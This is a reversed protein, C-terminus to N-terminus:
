NGMIHRGNQNIGMQVRIRNKPDLRIIISSVEDKYKSAYKYVELLASSTYLNDGFKQLFCCFMYTNM